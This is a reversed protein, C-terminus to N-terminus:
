GKWSIYYFQAVDKARLKIRDNNGSRSIVELSGVIKNGMSASMSNSKSSTLRSIAALDDTLGQSKIEPWLLNMAIEHHIAISM